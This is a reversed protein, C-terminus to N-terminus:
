ATKKRIREHFVFLLFYRLGAHFEKKKLLIKIHMLQLKMQKQLFYATLIGAMGAGIILNQTQINDRLEKRESLKTTNSWLSQM